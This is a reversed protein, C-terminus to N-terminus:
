LPREFYSELSLLTKDEGPLFFLLRSVVRLIEESLLILRSYSICQTGIAPTGLCAIPLRNSRTLVSTAHVQYQRCTNFMM